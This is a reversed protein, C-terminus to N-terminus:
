KPPNWNTRKWSRLELTVSGIKVKLKAKVPIRAGDNSFWGSFEGTLGFVLQYNTFGELLLSSIDYDVAGIEVDKKETNFNIEFSTSDQNFLVPVDVRYDRFFNYRAYYFISLGDQFVSNLNIRKEYELQNDFGIKIIDAYASDYHFLYTLVSTKGEKIEKSEFRLPRINNNIVQIESTFEFNVTVFPLADNSRLIATCLYLDKDLRKTNFKAWGINIFSYYVEYYLEEGDEFVEAQSFTKNGALFLLVLLFITYKRLNM